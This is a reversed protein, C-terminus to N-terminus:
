KKRNLKKIPSVLALTGKLFFLMMRRIGFFKVFKNIMFYVRAENYADAIKKKKELNNVADITISNEHERFVALYDEVFGFRTYDMSSMLTFLLDPGVGKYEKQAFPMKGIFLNNVLVEKRFIACGPSLLNNMEFYYLKWMSYNGTTKFFRNLQTETYSQDSENFLKVNAFVFGTNADMLKMCAEIFTPEIWDDDYNIHIFDSTAHLIADLWTSHVGLDKERRVYTIKGEYKKVIEPTNDTSGHDCVIIECPYTQNLASDICQELYHARNFTPIVISVPPQNMSLSNM